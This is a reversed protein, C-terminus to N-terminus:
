RKQQKVFEWAAYVQTFAEASGGRDPHTEMARKRFASRIVDMGADPDCGLVAAWWDPDATGAPAEHAEEYDIRPPEGEEVLVYGACWEAVTERLGRLAEKFSPFSGATRIRWLSGAIGKSWSEVRWGAATFFAHVQRLKVHGEGTVLCGFWYFANV